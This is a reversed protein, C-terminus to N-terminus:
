DYLSFGRRALEEELIRVPRLLKLATTAEPVAGRPALGVVESAAVEVGEASALACVAKFAAGIPTASPDTLNMSVQAVGRSPLGLGLARVGPLGGDRERLRRAIRQAVATDATALDVNFAVLASRAGVAVAGALPHPGPGGVDPAREHWAGRRVEPLGVGASALGYFFSPVQWQSWVERAFIGAAAVAAPMGAPHVPVFPM